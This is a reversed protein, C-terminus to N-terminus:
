EIVKIKDHILRLSDATGLDEKIRFYDLKINLRLRALAAAITSEYEEQVIIITETILFIMQISDNEVIILNLQFRWIRRKRANQPPVM